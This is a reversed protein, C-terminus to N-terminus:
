DLSLDKLQGEDIRAHISNETIAAWTAHPDIVSKSMLESPAPRWLKCHFQKYKSLLNTM